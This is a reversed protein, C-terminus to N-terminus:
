KLVGKRTLKPSSSSLLLYIWFFYIIEQYFRIVLYNTYDLQENDMPKM